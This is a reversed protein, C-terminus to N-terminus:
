DRGGGAGAGVALRGHYGCPHGDCGESCGSCALRKPLVAHRTGHTHLCMANQVDVNGNLLHWPPGPREWHMRDLELARRPKAAVQAVGAPGPVARGVRRLPLAGSLVTIM